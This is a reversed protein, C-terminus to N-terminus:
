PEEESTSLKPDWRVFGFGERGHETQAPASVRSFFMHEFGPEGQASAARGPSMENDGQAETEAEASHPDYITMM